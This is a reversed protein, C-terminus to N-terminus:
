DLHARKWLSQLMRLLLYLSFFTVYRGRLKIQAFLTSLADRAEAM